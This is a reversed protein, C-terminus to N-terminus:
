GNEKMRRKVDLFAGMVKHWEKACKSCLDLGDVRDWGDPAPEYILQCQWDYRLYALEVREGCRDCTIVRCEKNM